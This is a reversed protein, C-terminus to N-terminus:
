HVGTSAPRRGQRRLADYIAMGTALATGQRLGGPSATSSWHFSIVPWPQWDCGGLPTASLAAGAGPRGTGLFTM